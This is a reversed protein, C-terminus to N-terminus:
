TRRPRGTAPSGLFLHSRRRPLGLGTGPPRHPCRGSSRAPGTCRSGAAAPTRRLPGPPRCGSSSLRGAGSITRNGSREVLAQVARAHRSANRTACPPFPSLPEGRSQQPTDGDLKGFAGGALGLGYGAIVSIAVTMTRDQRLRGDRQEPGPGRLVSSRRAPPRGRRVGDARPAPTYGPRRLVPRLARRHDVRQDAHGGGAPRRKDAHALVILHSGDAAATADGVQALRTSFALPLPTRRAVCIGPRETPSRPVAIRSGLYGCGHAAM